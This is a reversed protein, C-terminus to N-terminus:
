KKGDLSLENHLVNNVIEEESNGEFPPTGTLMVHLIVGLSWIDCKENYNDFIVEPAMYLPSGIRELITLGKELYKCSGFEVLKLSSKNDHDLFAVSEPRLDRHIIGKSHLYAIASCIQKFYEAITAENLEDDRKLRELLEGGKCHETIITANESDRFIDMVKIIHPHDAERLLEAEKLFSDLVESDVSNISFFKAIYHKGTHKNKCKFLRSFKEDGIATGIRYEERVNSLKIKIMDKKSITLDNKETARIHDEQKGCAAGMIFKTIWILDYKLDIKIYFLKKLM